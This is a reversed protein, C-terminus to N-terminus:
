IGLEGPPRFVLWAVTVLVIWLLILGLWYLISGPSPPEHDAV